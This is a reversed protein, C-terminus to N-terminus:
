DRIPKPSPPYRDPDITRQFCSRGAKYTWIDNGDSPYAADIAIRPYSYGGGYGYYGGRGKMDEYDRAFTACLEFSKDGKVSYEYPAETQPDTAIKVGSIADNLDSLQAPLKGKTQWYNVIQWQTSQLDGVRQNDFRIDRQKTPSGAILFGGVISALVIVLAVIALTKRTKPAKWTRNLIYYTFIVGIIVLLALFKYFFRISIEGNLYTNILAVLDGAMIAGGIFITLYIRWRRVWIEKKDPIADIDKKILWELVYLIPVLVVLMSIPWAISSAYFYGALADPFCNNIIAYVLNVLAGVSIYLAITAGLHLFFDKPTTKIQNM